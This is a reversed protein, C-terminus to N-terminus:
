QFHRRQSEPTGNKHLRTADEGHDSDRMKELKKQIEDDEPHATM